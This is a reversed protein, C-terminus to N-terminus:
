GAELKRKDIPVSGPYKRILRLCANDQSILSIAARSEEIEEETLLDKISIGFHALLSDALAAQLKRAGKLVNHLQPQSLGLQRALSRESFEGNHIRANVFAILRIQLTRFTPAESRFNSEL